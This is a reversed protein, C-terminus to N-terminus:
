SCYYSFKFYMKYFYPVGVFPPNISNSLSSISYIFLREFSVLFNASYTRWLACSTLFDSPFLPSSYTTIYPLYSRMSLTRTSIFIIFDRRSFHLRLIYLSGEGSTSWLRSSPTLFGEYGFERFLLRVLLLPVPALM